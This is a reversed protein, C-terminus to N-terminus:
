SDGGVTRANAPPNSMAEIVAPSIGGSTGWVDANEPSRVWSHPEWSDDLVILEATYEIVNGVPDVFYSFVNGGPGHRGPGWITDYGAKRMRGLSRMVEDSSAVEFAVHNLSTWEGPALVVCHHLENCSLFVMQENEYWDSIRFGLVRIFFDKSAALDTANLVIHSLRDPGYARAPAGLYAPVDANVEVRRGEPDRLVVSYGSYVDSAITGPGSEVTVGAESARRTVEDVDAASGAALTIRELSHGDGPELTFVHHEQARARLRLGGTPSTGVRELGWTNEYFDLLDKPEQATIAVGRLHTILTM